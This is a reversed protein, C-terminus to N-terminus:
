DCIEYLDQNKNQRGPSPPWRLMRIDFSKSEVEMLWRDSSFIDSRYRLKASGLAQAIKTGDFRFCKEGFTGHCTIIIVIIVIIIINIIVIIVILVM